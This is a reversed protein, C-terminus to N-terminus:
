LCMCVCSSVWFVRVFFCEFSAKVCTQLSSSHKQPVLERVSPHSFHPASTVKEVAAIKHLLDREMQLYHQLRADVASKDQQYQMDESADM